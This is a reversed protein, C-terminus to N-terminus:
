KKVDGTIGLLLKAQQIIDSLELQSLMNDELATDIKVILDKLHGLKKIIMRWKAGFIIAILALLPSIIAGWNEM